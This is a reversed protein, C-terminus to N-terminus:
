PLWERVPLANRVRAYSPVLRPFQQMGQGVCRPEDSYGVGCSDEAQSPRFSSRPSLTGALIENRGCNRLRGCLEGEREVARHALKSCLGGRRYLRHRQNVASGSQGASRFSPVVKPPYALRPRAGITM